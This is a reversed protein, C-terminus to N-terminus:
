PQATAVPPTWTQGKKYRTAREVVTADKSREIVKDFARDFEAKNPERLDRHHALEVVTECAQQAYTPQDMYPGVFRLTELTRIARARSLVLRREDERHCMSMAKKLLALKEDDPRKDPLPAVRILAGRAMSRHGSHPDKEALEILRASVSADPWNCLARLGIEHRQPNADAIAAEVIKLAEPGGVRGLTPLLDTRDAESLSNVAALLPAARNKADAARACVFMVAKEAAERERGKQAKLVGQLMGPIHERGALQGLAAMAAARVGPEDDVAASLLDPIADLARRSALIEILTVRLPGPASKMEDAIQATVDKGRLRVLSKRAAASEAKSDSSGRALLLKFDTSEGLSGLAEIAAARVPEDQSTNLLDVVAHRAATDGRDALAGLLAVQADVPLKPLQAVFKLTADRGKAGTRIQELGLARVDKDKDNLLNVVLEVLDDGAEAAALPTCALAISASVALCVLTRFPM